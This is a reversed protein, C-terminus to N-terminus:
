KGNGARLLKLFDSARLGKKVKKKYLLFPLVVFYDSRVKRVKKLVCKWSCLHLHQSQNDGPNRFIKLELYEHEGGGMEDIQKKCEDCGYREEELVRVL